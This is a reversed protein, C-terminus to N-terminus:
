HLKKSITLINRNDEHRYDVSDMINKVLYIGLGGIERDEVCKTIDPDIKDIPNFPKGNDEFEITVLLNRDLTIRIRAFGLEPHYAYHAINIFIEEVAIQTEMRVAPSCPANDLTKDVFALVTELNEPKAAVTLESSGASLTSSM